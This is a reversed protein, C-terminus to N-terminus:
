IKAESFARVADPTCPMNAGEAVAICGNDLLTFADRGSLENQTASPVAVHCPVEWVNGKPVFRATRRRQAYSEIRAREVEKVQKPLFLDLGAPDHVNGSSDSCAVVTAGLQQLKEVAYIAVNGSGSVVATRG